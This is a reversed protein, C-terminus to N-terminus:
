GNLFRYRRGTNCFFILTFKKYNIRHRLLGFYLGGFRRDACCSLVGCDLLENRTTSRQSMFLSLLM